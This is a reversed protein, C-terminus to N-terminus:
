QLKELIAKVAAELVEDLKGLTSDETVPVTIDPIVGTGEIWLKGDITEPRGTPFQLSQGDPLSFQGLGVDGFAGATATHGVVISRGGIQMTYAFGECASVCHASVLVAIPGEYLKPGPLMRNIVPDYEFKGTAENYRSRRGIEIEEDFFYAAMNQALGLDGGGNTRVDIILGPVESDIMQSVYHEWLRATLNVDDLFSNIKIYGLGSPLVKGEVPLSLAAETPFLVSTLSELEDSATLTITQPGEGPNQYSIDVKQGQPVRALYLVQDLRRAQPTGYSSFAKPDLADIVASTPQGDWTIIEAGVSIGADAAPSDDIVRTVLVRKDTLETLV